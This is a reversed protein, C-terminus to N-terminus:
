IRGPSTRLYRWEPDNLLRRVAPQHNKDYVDVGYKSRWLLEVIPPICAVHKFDRSPTYGDHHNQLAKNRELIPEVDQVSEILFGGESKPHVYETIGSLPDHDLFIRSM